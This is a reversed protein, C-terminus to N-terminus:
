DEKIFIERKQFSSTMADCFRDELAYECVHSPIRSQHAAAADTLAFNILDNQLDAVQIMLARQNELDRAVAKIELIYPDEDSAGDFLSLNDGTEEAGLGLATLDESVTEKMQEGISSGLASLNAPKLDVGPADQAVLPTAGVAMALTATILLQKM